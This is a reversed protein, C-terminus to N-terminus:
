RLGSDDLEGFESFDTILYSDQLTPHYLQISQYEKIKLCNNLVTFLEMILFKLLMVLFLTFSGKTLLGRCAARRWVAM